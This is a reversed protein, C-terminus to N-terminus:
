EEAGPRETRTAHVDPLSSLASVGSQLGSASMVMSPAWGGQAVRLWSEYSATEGALASADNDVLWRALEEPTKFAPSIPTGESTDEYMMLHTREEDKWDPRYFAPDPPPNGYEWYPLSANEPSCYSPREGREWAQWAEYWEQMEPGFPRDFMPQYREKMQGTRWDLEKIKPHQWNAPVRRVERGM